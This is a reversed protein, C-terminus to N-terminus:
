REGFERAWCAPCYVVVEDADGGDDTVIAARWGREPADSRAGCEECDLVFRVQPVPRVCPVYAVEFRDFLPLRYNWLCTWLHTWL